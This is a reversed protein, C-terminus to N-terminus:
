PIRVRQRVLPRDKWTTKGAITRVISEFGIFASATIIVPYLFCVRRPMRTVNAVVLWLLANLGV